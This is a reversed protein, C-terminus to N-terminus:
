EAAQLQEPRAETAAFLSHRYGPPATRSRHNRCHSFGHDGPGFERHCQSCATREFKYVPAATDM